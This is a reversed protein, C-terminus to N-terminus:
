YGGAAPPAPAAPYAPPAPPAPYAPPAAPPEAPPAPPAPPAPYAPPAAPPTPTAIPKPTQAPVPPMRHSKPMCKIVRRTTTVVTAGAPPAVTVTVTTTPNGGTKFNIPVQFSMFRPPSTSPSDGDNDAVAVHIKTEGSVQLDEPNPTWIFKTSGLPKKSPNAHTVTAENSGQIGAADCISQQQFRFNNTDVQFKGMHFKPKDVSEIYMLIGQFDKRGNSSTVTIEFSSGSVKVDLGYGLTPDDPHKHAKSIVDSNIVCKPAGKPLASVSSTTLIFAAIFSFASQLLM